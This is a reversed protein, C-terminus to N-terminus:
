QNLYKQKPDLYPGDADEVRWLSEPSVHGETRQVRHDASNLAISFTAAQVIVLVIIWM